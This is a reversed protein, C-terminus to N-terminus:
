LIPIQCYLPKKGNKINKKKKIKNFFKKNSYLPKVINVMINVLTNVMTNVLAM